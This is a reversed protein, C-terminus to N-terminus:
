KLEVEWGKEFYSTKRMDYATLEGNIHCDMNKMFREHFHDLWEDSCDMDCGLTYVMVDLLMKAGADVGLDYARDVDKQTKPIKNTNTKSKQSKHAM